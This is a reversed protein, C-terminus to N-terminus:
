GAFEIFEVPYSKGKFDLILLAGEFLDDNTLPEADERSLKGAKVTHHKGTQPCNM